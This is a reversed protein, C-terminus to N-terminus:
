KIEEEVELGMLRENTETMYKSLADCMQQLTLKMYSKVKLHKKVENFKKLFNTMVLIAFAENEHQVIKWSKKVTPTNIVQANAQAALTNLSSDIVVNESDRKEKEAQSTLSRKKAEDANKLDQAYMGFVEEISDISSKLDDKGDYIQIGSVISKAEDVTVLKREFKTSVPLDIMPLEAAIDDKYQKLGTVSMKQDLAGTYYFNIRRSLLNRYEVAIRMQENEIHAKYLAIEKTKENMETASSNAKIRLSKEHEATDAILIDNRKEYEMLPGTLKEDIMRTFQLRADKGVAAEEKASKLYSQVTPLDNVARINLLHKQVTLESSVLVKTTSVRKVALNLWGKQVDTLQPLIEVPVAIQEALQIDQQTAVNNSM